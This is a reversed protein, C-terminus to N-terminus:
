QGGWVGCGVAQGECQCVRCTSHCVNCSLCGKKTGAAVCVAGRVLRAVSGEWVLTSLTEGRGIHVCMCVCVCVCVCVCM